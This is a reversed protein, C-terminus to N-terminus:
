TSDHSKHESATPPSAAGPDQTQSSTAEKPDQEAAAVPVTKNSYKELEATLMEINQLFFVYLPTPLMFSGAHGSGCGEVATCAIHMHLGRGSYEPM